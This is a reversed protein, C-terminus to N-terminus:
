QYESQSMPAEPKKGDPPLQTQGAASARLIAEDLARQYPTEASPIKTIKIRGTDETNEDRPKEEFYTKASPASKQAGEPKIQTIKIAM